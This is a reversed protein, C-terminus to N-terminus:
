GNFHEKYHCKKCLTMGNSVDFRLDHFDAFCKIHHAHLSSKNSDGCKKCKYSDRLLVAERWLRYEKTNRAKSNGVVVGGKWAPNNEGDRPIKFVKSRGKQDKQYCEKCCYKNQGKKIASPQRWFEKNCILCNFFSGRKRKEAGKKVSEPNRKRGKLKGKNALGIKKKTEESHAMYSTYCKFEMCDMNLLEIM